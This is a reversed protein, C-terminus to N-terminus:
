VLSELEERVRAVLARREPWPLFAGEFGNVIMQDIEERTFRLESHALWYEGSLTVGSMLWSDTSLTVNLGADFYGRVPHAAASPVVRTQVNSTINTELLIRRDRIYDRLLPDEYLRTGHGIRQAHCRHVADAISEPGAAEGAHVTVLLGGEAAIDFAEAHVGAPRGAEGGALDFGVVGMGRFSVSHRAIEASLGPDFHRLSCNIVRAVVGFDAEGRALGRLEAEVVQDLTLGGRVSLEPCYRVEMYRVGDAAADECMEWVVREIADPTQLLAITLDFRTLYEELNSADDVLMYRALAEPTSAPLAIRAKRALDLMTAPRLSGDLHVHLEAKPLRRLLEPTLM